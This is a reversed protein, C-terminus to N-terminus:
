HRAFFSLAIAALLVLNVVTGVMVVRSSGVRKLQRVVQLEDDELEKRTAAIAEQPVPEEAVPAPESRQETEGQALRKQLEDFLSASDQRAGELTYNFARPNRSFLMLKELDTRDHVPAAQTPRPAIGLLKSLAPIRDRWHELFRTMASERTSSSVFFSLIMILNWVLAAIYLWDSHTELFSSM